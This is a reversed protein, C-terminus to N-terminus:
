SNAYSYDGKPMKNIGALVKKLACAPTSLFTKDVYPKKGMPEM